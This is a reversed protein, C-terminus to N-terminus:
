ESISVNRPSLYTGVSLFIRKVAYREEPVFPGREVIPNSSFRRPPGAANEMDRPALVDGARPSLHMGTGGRMKVGSSLASM